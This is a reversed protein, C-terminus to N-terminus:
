NEFLFVSIPLSVEIFVVTASTIVSPTNRRQVLDTSNLQYLSQDKFCQFISETLTSKDATHNDYTQRNM